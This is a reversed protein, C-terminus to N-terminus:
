LAALFGAFTEDRDRSGTFGAAVRHGGGGLSTCVAGVDVAGKSRSSVRWYGQDDEKIVAAVETVDVSRVVDILAEVATFPVGLDQRQRASVTIWALGRGAAAAEDVNLSGLAQAMLRLYPVSKTDFLARSIEAFDIGVSILRAALEHTEPTTSAFRFSGTDSSIAAYLCAAIDETFTVGLEDLLEAIMVGTAPATALVNTHAFGTFSAHHDIAIFHESQNGVAFLRGLRDASAADVAVVVDPSGVHEPAIMLDLRPMWAMAEPVEFPDDPFTVRAEIGKSNLAMALALASGLADPDPNVHAVVLVSRAGALVPLVDRWQETM